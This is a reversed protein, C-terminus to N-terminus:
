MVTKPRRQHRDLDRAFHAFEKQTREAEIRTKSRKLKRGIKDM